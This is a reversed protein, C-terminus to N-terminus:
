YYNMKDVDVDDDNQTIVSFYLKKERELLESQFLFINFKKAQKTQSHAFVRASVHCCSYVHHNRNKNERERERLELEERKERQYFNKHKM